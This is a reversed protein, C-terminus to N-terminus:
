DREKLKSVFWKLRIIDKLIQKYTCLPIHHGSFSHKFCHLLLGFISSIHKNAVRTQFACWCCTFGGNADKFIYADSNTFRCYSM